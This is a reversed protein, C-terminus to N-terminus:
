AGQRSGIRAPPPPVTQVRVRIDVIAAGGQTLIVPNCDLEAIAPHDDALASVRRLVNELAAVNAAPAGSHGALLPYTKLARPMEHVDRESLPALRVSADALLEAAAGGAACAVVPGFLPDHTVGVLLEVGPAVMPQVLFGAPAHGSAGLTARMRRAARLVATPSTLGLRVAGADSKHVLGPVVAKLAVAGDLAGALQAADAPTRAAQAHVVPLAYCLALADVAQPQLWGGGTALASALIAAAEDRQAPPSVQARPSIPRAIAAGHRAAAALAGAADEPFAYVPIGADRLCAPAPEGSLNVAVFPLARSRAEFAEAVAEAAVAPDLVPTPGCVVALADLAPDAALAIIADRLRAASADGLVDVPNGASAAAPLVARLAAQTKLAPEPLMLGAAGAADALLIAAGGSNTVVGLRPGAPPPQTSLLAAVELLQRYTATRIVGAQAFLADVTAESAAVLTGTRSQAGRAGARSRGAKVAVIPKTRSVRRAIRAFRRPNGFSELYLAIVYTAEDQEWWQLLDNSSVDVRDGISVFSSLEIGHRRGQELAAIGVGRSQSLLAVHGGDPRSRAFTANVRPGAVGLCSPGIMRMGTARCLQLLLERRAIGAADEFGASIVLLAAVGKKACERAVKQVAAAPVAIVALEVSGAVDLISQDRGVTHLRGSFGASLNELLAHGVSGRRGSAGILAISAPELFHRVAAVAAIRDREAFRARAESDLRTPMEVNVLGASAHIAVPFGSERFMELMRTNEPLVLATFTDIGEQAAVEALQGLLVTGVGRGQWADAVAFAVEARGGGTGVFLGHGVAVPPEGALAVLGHMHEGAVAAHAAEQLDVGATHFRLARSRVSLGELLADLRGEDERRVPRVQVTAGDRLVVDAVPGEATV